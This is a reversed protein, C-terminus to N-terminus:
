VIATVDNKLDISTFKGWTRDYAIEGEYSTSYVGDEDEGTTIGTIAVAFDHQYLYTQAGLTPGTCKIRPFVLSGNRLNALPGMGSGDGAVRFGFSTSPPLDVHAAWSTQSTNGVWVPGYLDTIGWNWGFCRTLKTTGLGAATGDLFFDWENGSIPQLSVQAITAGPTTQSPTYLPTTGTLAASNISVLGVDAGAYMGGFTLVMPTGPLPGGTVVVDGPEINSLAILATQVTAASAGFAIATTTEGYFSITYTGGSVTGTATITQIEATGPTITSGDTTRQGIMSGSMSVGDRDGEMELGTVLGYGFASARLPGGSQVTFTLPTYGSFTLPDWEHLNVSAVPVSISPRGFLGSFMYAMDTYQAVEMEIEAETWEKNQVNTTVMRAGRPRYTTNESTISPMISTGLLMRTAAVQTGPVLEPGIQSREFVIAREPM